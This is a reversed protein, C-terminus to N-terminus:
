GPCGARRGDGAVPEVLREPLLVEGEEAAHQVAIEAAGEDEAHRHQLEDQRPQRRRQLQRQGGDEARRQDAHGGADIGAVPGVAREGLMMMAIEIRPKETGVKQIPRTSIM